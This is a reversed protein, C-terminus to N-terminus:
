SLREALSPLSASMSGALPPWRTQITGFLRAAHAVHFRYISMHRTLRHSVPMPHRCGHRCLFKLRDRSREGLSTASCDALIRWCQRWRAKSAGRSLTLVLHALVTATKNAVPRFYGSFTLLPGSLKSFLAGSSRGSSCASPEHFELKCMSNARVRFCSGLLGCPSSACAKSSTASADALLGGASCLVLRERCKAHKNLDESCERFVRLHCPEPFRRLLVQSVQLCRGPLLLGDRKSPESCDQLM